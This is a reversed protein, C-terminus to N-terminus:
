RSPAAEVDSPPTSRFLENLKHRAENLLARQRGATLRSSGGPSALTGPQPLEGPDLETLLGIQTETVGLVLVRKGVSVIEVSKKPALHLRELVQMRDDGGGSWRGKMLRRALWTTGWILALVFVFAGALQGLSPWLSGFEAGTLVPLSDSAATTNTLQAEALQSIAGTLSAAFLFRTTWARKM